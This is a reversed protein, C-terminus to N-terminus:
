FHVSKKFYLSNLPLWFHFTTKCYNNCTTVTTVYKTPSTKCNSFCLWRPVIQSPSQAPDANYYFCIRPFIKYSLLHLFVNAM